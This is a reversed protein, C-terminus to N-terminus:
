KLKVNEKEFEIKRGIHSMNTQIIILLFKMFSMPLLLCILFYILITKKESMM